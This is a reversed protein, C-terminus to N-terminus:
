LAGKGLSGVGITKVAGAGGINFNIADNTGFVGPNQAVIDADLTIGANIAAIAERLSVAGNGPTSDDAATTVTIIAPVARHELSELRLKCRVARGVRSDARPAGALWRRVHSRWLRLNM